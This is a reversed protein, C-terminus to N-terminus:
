TISFEPHFITHSLMALLPEFYATFLCVYYYLITVNLKAVLLLILYIFLYLFFSLFVLIQRFHFSASFCSRRAESFGTLSRRAISLSVFPRFSFSIECSLSLPFSLSKGPKASAPGLFGVLVVLPV